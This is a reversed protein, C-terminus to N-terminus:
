ADPLSAWLDLVYAYHDERVKSNQGMLWNTLMNANLGHPVDDAFKLLRTPGIGTRVREAKLFALREETLAIRPRRYRQRRLVGPHLDARLESRDPVDHWRSLVYHLHDPDATKAKGEIWSTVMRANLGPPKDYAGRLMAQPGM